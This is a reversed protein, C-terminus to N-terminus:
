RFVSESALYEDLISLSTELWERQHFAYHKGSSFYYCEATVEWTGDENQRMVSLFETISSLRVVKLLVFRSGNVVSENVKVWQHGLTRTEDGASASDVFKLLKPNFQM